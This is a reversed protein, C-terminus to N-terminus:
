PQYRSLKTRHGHVDRAGSAHALATRSSTRTQFYVHAPAGYSHGLLANSRHVVRRDLFQLLFPQMWTSLESCYSWGWDDRGDVGLM